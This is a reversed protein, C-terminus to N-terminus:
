LNEQELYKEVETMLTETKERLAAADSVLTGFRANFARGAPTYEKIQGHIKYRLQKFRADFDYYAM